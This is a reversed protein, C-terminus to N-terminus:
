ETNLNTELKSRLHLFKLRRHTHNAAPWCLNRGDGQQAYNHKPTTRTPITSTPFPCCLDIDYLMYNLVIQDSGSTRFM